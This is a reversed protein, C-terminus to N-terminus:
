QWVAVGMDLTACEVARLWYYNAREYKMETNCPYCVKTGTVWVRGCRRCKRPEQPMDGVFWGDSTVKASTMDM